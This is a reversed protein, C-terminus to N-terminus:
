RTLIVKKSLSLEETKLQIFYIGLPLRLGHADKGDFNVLYTGPEKSENTLTKVERGSINFVKLLVRGSKSVQYKINLDNTFPNPFPTFLSTKLPIESTELSQAGGEKGKIIEFEYLRLKALAAFNGQLKNIRLNIFTSDYFGPPIVVRLTEPKSRRFQVVFSRNRFTFSQRFVGSSEHYAIAELLYHKRPNLYPIIYALNTSDYDINM